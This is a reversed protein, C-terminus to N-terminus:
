SNVGTFRDLQTALTGPQTFYLIPIAGPFISLSRRRADDDGGPPAYIGCLKLQPPNMTGAVQLSANLREIVWDSTVQGFIIILVSIESVLAQFREFSKRPDDDDPNIYPQLAKGLLLPYLELAHLQDKRHTELMAASAAAAPDPKRSMLQQLKNVIEEPVCSDMVRAFTYRDKDREEEELSTLFARYEEDQISPIDVLPSPPLWVLQSKAHELGIEAQRQLFTKGSEGEIFKEGPKADLLHVCLTAASVESIVERDHDPEYPPPIRRAVSVGEDRLRKLVSTRLESLSEVTDALFVSPVEAPLPPPDPHEFTKKYEGLLDFIEDALEKVQIEFTEGGFRSPDGFESRRTEYFEAKGTGAFEPPWEHYPINYLLANFM